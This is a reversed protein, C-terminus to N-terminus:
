FTQSPRTSVSDEFQWFLFYVPNSNERSWRNPNFPWVKPYILWIKQKPLHTVYVSAHPLLILLLSSRVCKKLFIYRECKIRFPQSLTVFHNHTLPSNSVSCVAVYQGVTGKDKAASREREAPSSLRPDQPGTARQQTITREVVDYWWSSQSWVLQVQRHGRTIYNNWKWRSITPTM